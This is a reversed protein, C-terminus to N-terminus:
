LLDTLNKVNQGTEPDIYSVEMEEPEPVNVWGTKNEKDIDKRKRPWVLYVSIGCTILNMSVIILIAIQM